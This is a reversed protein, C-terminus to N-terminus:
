VDLCDEKKKKEQLAKNQDLTPRDLLDSWFETYHLYNWSRIDPYTFFLGAGLQIFLPPRKELPPGPLLRATM